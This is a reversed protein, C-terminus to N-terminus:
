KTIIKLPQHNPIVIIYISKTLSSLDVKVSQGDMVSVPAGMERGQIDMVKIGNGSDIGHIIVEGGNICVNIDDVGVANLGLTPDDFRLEKVSERKYSFKGNPASVVMDGSEYTIVPKGTLPFSVSTGDTMLVKLEVETGVDQAFTISSSFLLAGLLVFLQKLM